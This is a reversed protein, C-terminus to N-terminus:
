GGFDQIARKAESTGPAFRDILGVTNKAAAINGSSKYDEGLQLLNIQNYPDLKAIKLRTQIASSWIKEYEYIRALLYHADYNLPDSTIVSNLRSIAGSFDSAYALSAASTVAFIPEQFVYHLPKLASARYAMLESQTKPTPSRKLTQVSVEGSFFLVAVIFMVLAMGASFLPQLISIKESKLTSTCSIGVLAGGLLYGWIAVGLNDISILSQLEYAIWAAFLVAVVIQEHGRSKRLAVIGRWVIFFNLALFAALVFIGGTAALQLPVNHAANSVLDPGRRLSQTADRYQRFNAGYRDLGVGFFPHHVFMRWGARWYDGRYTISMKYFYKAFPGKNLMGFLALAAGCMTFLSLAYASMKQRQFLVVIIVFILGIAAAVFGQRVQSFKIVTVLLLSNIGVLIKVLISNNKQLLMGFNVILFIGMLAGAFDPNGVTSLVSNYPNSWHVFDLQFHQLFGYGAMLFSIFVITKFLLTVNGFRILYSSSVFFVILALYSLYGTRRQYEGFMGVYKNDTALYSLSLSLVLITSLLTSNKLAPVAM